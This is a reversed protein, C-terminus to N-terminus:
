KIGDLFNHLMELVYTFGCALAIGGGTGMLFESGNKSKTIFIMLVGILCGLLLYASIGDEVWNSNQSKKVFFHFLSIV